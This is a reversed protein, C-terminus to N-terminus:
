HPSICLTGRLMIFHGYREECDKDVPGLINANQTKLRKLKTQRKAVKVNCRKAQSIKRTKLEM